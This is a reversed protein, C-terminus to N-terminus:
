PQGPHGERENLAGIALRWMWALAAFAALVGVAVGLETMSISEFNLVFVALRM